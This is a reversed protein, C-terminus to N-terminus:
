SVCRIQNSVLKCNEKKYIKFISLLCNALFKHRWTLERIYLSQLRIFLTIVTTKIHISGECGLYYFANKVKLEFVMPSSLIVNELRACTFFSVRRYLTVCLSSFVKEHILSFPLTSSLHM